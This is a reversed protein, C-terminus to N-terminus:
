RGKPFSMPELQEGVKRPVIVGNADKQLYGLRVLEEQRAAAEADDHTPEPGEEFQGALEFVEAHIAEYREIARRVAPSRSHELDEQEGPDARLNYVEGRRELGTGADTEVFRVDVLVKHDGTWLAWTKGRGSEPDDQTDRLLGLQERPADARGALLQRLSRGYMGHRLLPHSIPAIPEVGALDLITPAVDVLSVRNQVRAGRRAFGPLRVLLPVNLSEGYLNNRHGKRGHEFFEDGHDSVVVVLTDTSLDLADLRDLVRGIQEDVWRIEGDYYTIVGDLAAPDMGAHVAPNHIFGQGNILPPRSYDPWFRKAYRESPPEYDYHVDFYHLFLFFPQDAAQVHHRDLFALAGNSVRESTIQQHSDLDLQRVQDEDRDEAAFDFAAQSGCNVYDGEAFGRGFGYAPHLYPGSYFGATKWGEAALAEPLAVRDPSAQRSDDIAGHLLDPLGSLLAHHSPMTWSTTAVCNEFLTGQEALEDLRPSTSEGHATEYGYCGLHDARLSDISILLVNLPRDPDHTPQSASPTDDSGCGVLAVLGALVVLCRPVRVSRSPRRPLCPLRATLAHLRTGPSM